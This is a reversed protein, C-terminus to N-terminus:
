SARKMKTARGWVQKFHFRALIDLAPINECTKKKTARNMVQEFCFRALIDLAPINECTEQVNVNKAHKIRQNTCKIVKENFASVGGIQDFQQMWVSLTGKYM